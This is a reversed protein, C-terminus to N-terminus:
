MALWNEVREYVYDKFLFTINASVFLLTARESMIPWSWHQLFKSTVKKLSAGPSKGIEYLFM